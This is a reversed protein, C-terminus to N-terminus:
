LAFIRMRSMGSDSTSASSEAESASGACHGFRVLWSKAFFLPLAQTGIKPREQQLIASEEFKGEGLSHEVQGIFPLLAEGLAAGLIQGGLLGRPQARVDFHELVDSM